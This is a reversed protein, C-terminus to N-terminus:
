SVALASYVFALADTLAFSVNSAPSSLALSKAGTFGPLVISTVAGTPGTIRLPATSPWAGGMLIAKLLDFTLRSDADGGVPFKAVLVDLASKANALLSTNSGDGVISGAVTVTQTTAPIVSLGGTGLTMVDSRGLYALVAAIEPATAPGAANALVCQITGPGTPNDTRVLWRTVTAASTPILYDFSARTWGAGLTAWKGLCRTVAEANTEADRGATDLTAPSANTIALGPRGVALHTVNGSNQNGSTGALTAVFRALTGTSGAPITVNAGPASEFYTGDDAQAIYEGPATTLTYPTAGANTLKLTWVAKSAPIRVENFWSLAQDVFSDGALPSTTLYGAKALVVRLAEAAALARADTAFIARQPSSDDFGAVTVGNTAAQALSATLIVAETRATTAQLYTTM